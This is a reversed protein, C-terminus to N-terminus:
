RPRLGLRLALARQAREIVRFAERLAPRTVPGLRRPDVHDDPNAGHFDGDAQHRLRVGWIFRFAEELDAVLADDFGGGDRLTRLRGITSREVIGRGVTLARALGTVILLGGHKIDLTGAHPGRRETVLRDFAGLPPRLDLARHALHAAFGPHRPAERLVADLHSEVDLTGAVRRYDFVISAQFSGDVGLDSIWGRLAQVWQDLPRRLSPETAMVKGRCRPIGAAELNATVEAALSAFYTDSEPGADYAIAHDQDSHLGQERRAESGLAIWAWPVPAGGLDDAALDVFRQTLSDTMLAVAYGIDVPDVGARVMSRVVRTLGSAAAIAAAADKSEEITRKLLFPSDRGLGLLDTDTVVGIVDGARDTVPVHHFGGELMVLVAEGVMASGPITRATATMVESIPSELDRGLAVVRSRLDRDTLIGLGDRHPILVSSIRERAMLGAAERISISPPCTMPPRGVLSEVRVLRARADLVGEDVAGAEVGIEAGGETGAAAGTDSSDPEAEDATV